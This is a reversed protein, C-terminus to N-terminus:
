GGRVPDLQAIARALAAQVAEPTAAGAIAAMAQRRLGTLRAVALRWSDANGLIRAVLHEIRETTVAAESELLVRDAASARGEAHARAAEEKASWSLKETLPVAGTIAQAATDIAEVLAREAVARAEALALGDRAERTELLTWDIQM